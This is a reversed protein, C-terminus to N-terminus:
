RALRVRPSTRCASRSHRRAKIPGAEAWPRPPCRFVGFHTTWFTRRHMRRFFPAPVPGRVKRNKLQRLRRLQLAIRTCGGTPIHFWFTAMRGLRTGCICSASIAVEACRIRQACRPPRRRLTTGRTKPLLGDSLEIIEMSNAGATPM